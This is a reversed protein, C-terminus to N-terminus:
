TLAALAAPTHSRVEATEAAAGGEAAAAATETATMARVPIGATEANM